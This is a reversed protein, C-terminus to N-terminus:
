IKSFENNIEKYKRTLVNFCSKLLSEETPNDFSALFIM